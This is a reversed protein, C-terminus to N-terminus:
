EIYEDLYRKNNLQESIIFITKLTDKLKLKLTLPVASEGPPVTVCTFKQSMKYIAAWSFKLEEKTEWM